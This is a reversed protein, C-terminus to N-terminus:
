AKKSKTTGPGKGNTPAKTSGITDNHEPPDQQSTSPKPVPPAQSPGGAQTTPAAPASGQPKNGTARSPHGQASKEKDIAPRNLITCEKSDEESSSQQPQIAKNDTKPPVFRGQINKNTISENPNYSADGSPEHHAENLDAAESHPQPTWRERPTSTLARSKIGRDAPTQPNDADFTIPSIKSLSFGMDNLEFSRLHSFLGSKNVNPHKNDGQMIVQM